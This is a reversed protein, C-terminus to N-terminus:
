STFRVVKTNQFFQKMNPVTVITELIDNSEFTLTLHQKGEFTFEKCKQRITERYSM